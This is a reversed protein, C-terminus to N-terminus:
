DFDTLRGCAMLFDALMNFKCSQVISHLSPQIECLVSMRHRLYLPCDEVIHERTEEGLDCKRCTADDRKGIAKLHIGFNGHGTLVQLVLRLKSRSLDLLKRSVRQTVPAPFLEKTLRCSSISLWNSLTNKEVWDDVEKRCYSVPVPIMPEPGICPTLAGQKALWDATENGVTGVHARTWQLNTVALEALSNLTNICQDILANKIKLSNTAKIAAQSDSYIIVRDFPTVRHISILREAALIIALVEAQFVSAHHGLPVSIDGCVAGPFHVGAGTVGSELKSGDTYCTLADSDGDPEAAETSTEFNIELNLRPRVLEGPLVLGRISSKIDKCWNVHSRHALTDRIYDDNWMNNYHLRYAGLAATGKLYLDLAPLGLIMELAVTPSGPYASSIALCAQRQLRSLKTKATGTELGAGWIISAYSVIPRIMMKYVWMMVKPTLGWVSGIARRCMFLCRNAKTVRNTIHPLWSLKSDLTVGLYTVRDVLGIESGAYKLPHYRWKRKWTFMTAMTKESSIKLGCTESWDSVAAIGDQARESIITSDLGCALIVVDDAYAQAYIGPVSDLRRLLNNMVLNFLLPSLVGGQPTGRAVRVTRSYNGISATVRQSGLMCVIWDTLLPNVGADELAAEVASFSVNSFAGEIDLFLGLAAQRSYVSKEIRRVVAHLAAETSHGQKYAFQRPHSLSTRPDEMLQWYVLRELTKLFFSTLTIPRFAKIRQYSEKGPKPLFVERAESWCSPIHKLRLSAQFLIVMMGLLAGGGQQLMIPYIGDRGPSKYSQFSNIAKVIRPRTVMHQALHTVEPVDEVVVESSVNNALAELSDDEMMSIPGGDADSEEIPVCGPFHTALMVELTEGPNRTYSGDAKQIVDLQVRKEGKLVKTLRSLEPMKEFQGCFTRWSDRKAKRVASKYAKLTDKYVEWNPQTNTNAAQHRARRVRKRAEALAPSWWRNTSKEWRVSRLPCAAEWAAIMSSTVKGAAVDLDRVNNINGVELNALLEECQSNFLLWDTRRVNRSVKVPFNQGALEFRICRHDSLSPTSDVRWGSVVDAIGASVLTVDLVERRNATVFTPEHGRNCIFMNTSILYDALAEGRGNTDSSNWLINHANVDGGMLLPIDNNRCHGIVGRALPPPPDNSEGPMYVSSCWLTGLECDFAITVMDSDTFDPVLWASMAESAIIAARNREVENSPTAAQFVMAGTPINTAIGSRTYPEQLLAVFGADHELRRQLDASAIYSRHLNLQWVQITM